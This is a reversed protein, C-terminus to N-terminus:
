FTLCDPQLVCGNRHGEPQAPVSKIHHLHHSSQCNLGNLSVWNIAHSIHTSSTTDIGLDQYKHQMLIEILSTFLGQVTDYFM